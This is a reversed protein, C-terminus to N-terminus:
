SCDESTTDDADYRRCGTGASAPKIGKDSEDVPLSATQLSYGQGRAANKSQGMEDPITWGVSL